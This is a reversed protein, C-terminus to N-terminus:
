YKLIFVVFNCSVTWKGFQQGELDEFMKSKPKEFYQIEM